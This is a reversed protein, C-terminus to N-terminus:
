PAGELVNARSSGQYTSHCVFKSPRDYFLLNMYFAQLARRFHLHYTIFLITARKSVLLWCSHEPYKVIGKLLGSIRRDFNPWSSPNVTKAPNVFIRRTGSRASVVKGVGQEEQVLMLSNDCRCKRCTNDHGKHPACCPLCWSQVKLCTNEQGKHPACCPLCWSQM